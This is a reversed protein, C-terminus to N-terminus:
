TLTLPRDVNGTVELTAAPAATSQPKASVPPMAAGMLAVLVAAVRFRGISNMSLPHLPM